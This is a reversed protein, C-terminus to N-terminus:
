AVAVITRIAMTRHVHHPINDLAQTHFIRLHVVESATLAWSVIVHLAHWPCETAHYPGNVLIIFHHKIAYKHPMYPTIHQLRSAVVSLGRCGSATNM